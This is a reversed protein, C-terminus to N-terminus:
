STAEEAAAPAETCGTVHVADPVVMEYGEPGSYETSRISYVGDNNFTWLLKNESGPVVQMQAVMSDDPRFLGFGYTLDTSTVSFQVLENCPVQLQQEPLQWEHNGVTIDYSAAYNPNGHLDDAVWPITNYTILHLSVGLVALFGVWTYFIKTSIRSPAGAPKTVRMAFWGVLSIIVLCYATYMITQGWLVTTSDIVAARM